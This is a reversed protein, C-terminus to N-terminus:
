CYFKLFGLKRVAKAYSSFIHYNKEILLSLMFSKFITVNIKSENSEVKKLRMCIM